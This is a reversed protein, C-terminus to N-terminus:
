ASSFFKLIQVLLAASNDIHPRMKREKEQSGPIENFLWSQGSGCFIGTCLATLYCAIILSDKGFRTRSTNDDEMEIARKYDTLEQSSKIRSYNAGFSTLYVIQWFKNYSYM